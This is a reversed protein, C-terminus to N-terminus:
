THPGNTLSDIMCALKTVAGWRYMRQPRAESAASSRPKARPPQSLPPAVSTSGEVPCGAGPARVGPATVWTTSVDLAVSNAGRPVRASCAAASSAAPSVSADVVNVHPVLLGDTASTSPVPSTVPTAGPVALMVAVEPDTVEFATATVTVFAVAAVTAILAGAEDITVDVVVCATATTRSEAPWVKVPTGSVHTDLLEETAVTELLPRILPTVAPIAVMAAVDPDTVDFASCIVTTAPDTALTVTVALADVNVAFCVTCACATTFSALPVTSLPTLTMQAVDPDTMEFATARVTVFAVAAVTAILAGAVDITADPVVCATATTRSAAPLVRVPTGSM